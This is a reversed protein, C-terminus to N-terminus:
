EAGLKTRIKNEFDPQSTPVGATLGEVARELTTYRIDDVVINAVGQAESDDFRVIFWVIDCNSSHKVSDMPGLANFFPRDVVVAMKKGWRRLTPVKTQLQPMLRKPGCSRFDPRRNGGPMPPEDAQHIRILDYDKSMAAGSFYVAQLEVACWKLIDLDPHVMVMDIRGVDENDLAGDVNTNSEESNENPVSDSDISPRILFPIEKAILADETGLLTRGIEKFILGGELFRNPCTATLPGFKVNEDNNLSFQRLSCVGGKKNCVTRGRPAIAPMDELFRCPKDKPLGVLESRANRDLTRFLRGYWEGIGYSTRQRPRRAM